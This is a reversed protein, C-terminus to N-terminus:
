KVFEVSGWAPDATDGSDCSDESSALSRQVLNVLALGKIRIDFGKPSNFSVRQPGWLTQGQDDTISVTADFRPCDTDGSIGVVGRLRKYRGNTKIPLRPTGFTDNSQVYMSVGDKYTKDAITQPGFDAEGTEEVRGAEYLEMLTDAARTDAPPVVEVGPATSESGPSTTQGTSRGEGGGSDVRGRQASTNPVGQSDTTAKTESRDDTAAGIFGGFCVVVTAALLSPRWDSM